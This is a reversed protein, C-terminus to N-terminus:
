WRCCNRKRTGFAARVFGLDRKSGNSGVSLKRALVMSGDGGCLGLAPQKLSELDAVWQKNVLGALVMM